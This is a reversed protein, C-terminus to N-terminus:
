NHMWFSEQPSGCLYKYHSNKTKMAAEREVCMEYVFRTKKKNHLISRSLALQLKTSIIIVTFASGGECEGKRKRLVQKKCHVQDSQRKEKREAEEGRNRKVNKTAPKYNEIVTCKIIDGSAARSKPQWGNGNEKEPPKSNLSCTQITWFTPKNWKNRKENWKLPYM